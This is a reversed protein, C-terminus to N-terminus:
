TKEPAVRAGSGGLFYPKLVAIGFLSLGLPLMLMELVRQLLDLSFTQAVYPLAVPILMEVALRIEPGWSMKLPVFDLENIRNLSLTLDASPSVRPLQHLARHLALLSEYYSRCSLCGEAHHLLRGSLAVDVSSDLANQASVRFDECKMEKGEEM